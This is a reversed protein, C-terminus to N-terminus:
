VQDVDALYTARKLVWTQEPDLGLLRIIERPKALKGEVAMTAFDIIVDGDTDEHVVMSRIAPRIDLMKRVEKKRGRGKSKTARDVVIQTQDLLQRTDAQIQKFEGQTHISYSFGLVSSMLSPTKLPVETVEFAAMGPPLTGRLRALLEAPDIETRLIADLYEGDSAEGVPPASSFTVKPHAHFGQSYSLPAGARRLARVWATMWELNSLFRAEDHRGIRFRLRQVQPPEEAPTPRDPITADGGQRTRERM